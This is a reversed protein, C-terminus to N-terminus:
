GGEPIGVAGDVIINNNFHFDFNQEFCNRMRSVRMEKKELEELLYGFLSEQTGILTKTGDIFDEISEINALVTTAANLKDIIQQKNVEHSFKLCDPEFMEADMGRLKGNVQSIEKDIEKTKSRIENARAKEKKMIDILNNMFTTLDKQYQVVRCIDSHYKKSWNGAGPRKYIFGLHPDETKAKRKAQILLKKEESNNLLRIAFDDDFHLGLTAALAGFTVCFIKETMNMEDNNDPIINKIIPSIEKRMKDRFVKVRQVPTHAQNLWAQNLQANDSNSPEEDRNHTESNSGNVLNYDPEQTSDLNFFEDADKNEAPSSSLLHSEFELSM